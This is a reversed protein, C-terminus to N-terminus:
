KGNDPIAVMTTKESIGLAEKLRNEGYVLVREMAYVAYEADESTLADLLREHLRIAAASAGDLTYFYDTYYRYVPKFSNFMLQIVLNKAIAAFSFHIRFDMESLVEPSGANEKMAGVFGRILVIDERSICNMAKRVAYLEALRRFEVLSVLTESSVPEGSRMIYILLDLSADTKFDNAYTGSKPVSTVLGLQELRNIAERVTTRSVNYEESLRRESPLKTGPVFTGDVTKKQLVNFIHDPSRKDSM